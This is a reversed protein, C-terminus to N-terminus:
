EELKIIITAEHSESSAEVAAADRFVTGLLSEFTARM